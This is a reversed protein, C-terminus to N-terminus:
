GPQQSARYALEAAQVAYRLAQAVDQQRDAAHQLENRYGQECETRYVSLGAGGCPERLGACRSEVVM